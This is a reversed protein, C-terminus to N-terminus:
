NDSGDKFFFFLFFQFHREQVWLFVSTVPCVAVKFDPSLLLNLIVVFIQKLGLAMFQLFVFPLKSLRSSKSHPSTHLHSVGPPICNRPLYGVDRHPKADLFEPSSGLFIGNHRQNPFPFTVIIFYVWLM